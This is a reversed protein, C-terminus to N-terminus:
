RVILRYTNSVSGLNVIRIKLNQAYALDVDVICYDTRDDDYGLLRDFRDYVYCDLDTRGNGDVTVTSEGSPVWVRTWVDTDFPLVRDVRDVQALLYSGSVVLAIALFAAFRHRSISSNM